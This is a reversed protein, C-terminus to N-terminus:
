LTNSTGDTIDTLRIKHVKQVKQATAQLAGGKVGGKKAALDRLRVQKGRPKAKRARRAM